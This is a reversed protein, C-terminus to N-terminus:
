KNAPSFCRFKDIKKDDIKPLHFVRFRGHFECFFRGQAHQGVKAGPVFLKHVLRRNLELSGIKKRAMEVAMEVAM